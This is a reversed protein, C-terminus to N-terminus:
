KNTLKSKFLAAFADEPKLDTNGNFGATRDVAKQKTGPGFMGKLKEAHAKYEDSSTGQLLAAFEVATDGPVGAELAAVLKNYNSSATDREAVVASKEDSLSKIQDTFSATVEAKAEEAANQAKVRYKAAENNAESIAKRAWEPADDNKTTAQVTEDTKNDDSM